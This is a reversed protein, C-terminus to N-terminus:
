ERSEQAKRIARRWKEMWHDTFEKFLESYLCGEKHSGPSRWWSDARPDTTGGLPPECRCAVAFLEKRLEGGRKRYYENRMDLEPNELIEDYMRKMRSVVRRAERRARREPTMEYVSYAVVVLATLALLAIFFRRLTLM